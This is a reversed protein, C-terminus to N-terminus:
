VENSASGLRERHKAHKLFVYYASLLSFVFGEFGDRFGQKWLYLRAFMAVPRWSLGGRAAAKGSQAFREAEMSTYRNLRGWYDNVSSYTYHLLDNKLDGIAGQVCLEEHVPNKFVASTKHFLRVPKDDQTGTFSFSRGFIFSRRHIRYAEARSKQIVARIETALAPSVVEDADLSLVWEHSCQSAAWNKQDAYNVFPRSYVRETHRRCVELTGDTSQSDVVIIEDALERISALSRDVRHAENRTIMFVSLMGGRENV